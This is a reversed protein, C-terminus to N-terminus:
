SKLNELTIDTTAKILEPGAVRQITTDKTYGNYLPLTIQASDQANPVPINYGSGESPPNECENIDSAQIIGSNSTYHLTCYLSDNDPNLKGTIGTIKIYFNNVEFSTIKECANCTGFNSIAVPQYTSEDYEINLDKDLHFSVSNNYTETWNFGDNGNCSVVSNFSFSLKWKGLIEVPQILIIDGHSITHITAAIAVPNNAPIETPAIYQYLAEQAGNVPIIKGVHEDGNVIGNVDWEDPTLSKSYTEKPDIPPTVLPAVLPNSFEKSKDPDSKWVSPEDMTLLLLGIDGPQMRITKSYDESLQGDAKMYLHFCTYISWHSFHTTKISITHNVTDVEGNVAPYWKGDSDNKYAVGIDWPSNGKLWVSDYHFTLTVPKKFQTGEPLLEFQYLLNSTDMFTVSSNGISVKTGEKMAGVPIDLKIRGNQLSISTDTKNYIVKTGTTGTSNGLQNGPRVDNNKKCETLVLSLSIFLTSILFLHKM